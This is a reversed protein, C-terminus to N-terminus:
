GLVHSRFARQTLVPALVLSQPSPCAPILAVKWRWPCYLDEWKSHTVKLFSVLYSLGGLESGM